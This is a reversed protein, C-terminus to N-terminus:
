RGRKRRPHSEYHRQRAADVIRDLEDESMGKLAEQFPRSLEAITQRPPLGVADNGTKNKPHRPGRAKEVFDDIEADTLHGLIERLPKALEFISPRGVLNLTALHDEVVTKLYQETSVGKQKAARQLIRVKKIAINPVELTQAM